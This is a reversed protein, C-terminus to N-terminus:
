GRIATPYIGRAHVGNSGNGDFPGFSANNCFSSGLDLVLVITKEGEITKL